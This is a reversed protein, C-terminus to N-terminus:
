INHKVPRQSKVAGDSGTTGSHSVFESPMLEDLNLLETM